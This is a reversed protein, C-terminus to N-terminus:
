PLATLHCHGLLSQAQMHADIGFYTWSEAACSRTDSCNSCAQGLLSSVVLPRLSRSRDKPPSLQVGLVGSGPVGVWRGFGSDGVAATLGPGELGPCMQSAQSLRDGVGLPGLMWGVSPAAQLAGGPTEGSCSLLFPLCSHRHCLLPAQPHHAPPPSSILSCGLPLSVQSPSSLFACLASFM